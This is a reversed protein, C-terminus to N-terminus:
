GPLENSYSVPKNLRRMADMRAHGDNEDPPHIEFPSTDQAKRISEAITSWPGNDPYYGAHRLLLKQEDEDLTISVLTM